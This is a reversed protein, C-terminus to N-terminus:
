LSKAVEHSVHLSLVLSTITEPQSERIVSRLSGGSPRTVGLSSGAVVVVCCHIKLTETATTRLKMVKLRSPTM